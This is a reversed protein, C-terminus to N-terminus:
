WPQWPWPFSCDCGYGLLQQTLGPPPQTSTSQLLWPLFTCWVGREARVCLWLGAPRKIFNFNIEDCIWVIYGMSGRFVRLLPIRPNKKSNKTLVKWTIYKSWTGERGGVEALNERSGWEGLDMYKGEPKGMGWFMFVVFALSSLCQWSKTPTCCPVNKEIVREIHYDGELSM